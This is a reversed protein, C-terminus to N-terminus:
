AFTKFTSEINKDIVKKVADMETQVAQQETDVQKLQLELRKDSDQISETQANIEAIASDYETQRREYITMASNYQSLSAINQSKHTYLYDQSGETVEHAINTPESYANYTAMAANYAQMQLSLTQDDKAEFIGTERDYKYQATEEVVPVDVTTGDLCTVSKMAVGVNFDDKTATLKPQHASYYLLFNDQDEQTGPFTAADFKPQVVPSMIFDYQSPPIPMELMMMKKYLGASQNALETRSQNIQQGQYEVNSQRATLQLFRTQSASLGM